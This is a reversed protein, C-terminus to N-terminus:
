DRQPPKQGSVPIRHEQDLFERPGHDSHANPVPQDGASSLFEEEPISADQGSKTTYIAENFLSGSKANAAAFIPFAKGGGFGVSVYDAVMYGSFTNPLESMKMPGALTVPASWTRGATSSQIFGAYLECTAATCKASPYYYYAVALHASAGKTGPAIGLGAIFHDVTSFTGDIPVRKVASWKTGTTSTSYVIDNEACSVRYRCDPWAVYIKGGADIASAVLGASRLGGLRM